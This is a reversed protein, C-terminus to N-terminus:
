GGTDSARESHRGGPASGGGSLCAGLGSKAVSAHSAMLPAEPPQGCVTLPGSGAGAAAAARSAVGKMLSTPAAM